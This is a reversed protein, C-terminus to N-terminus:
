DSEKVLTEDHGIREYTERHFRYLYGARALGALLCCVGFAPLLRAALSPTAEGLLVSYNDWVEAFLWALGIAALGPFVLRRWPSLDAVRLGPRDKRFFNVVAVSTLALLGLVLFGGTQGLWFFLHVMPDAHAVPGYLLIAALGILSQLGSATWPARVRNIRDLVGPAVRERGLVYTYRTVANHFAMM